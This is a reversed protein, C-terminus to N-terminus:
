EDTYESETVDDSNLIDDLQSGLAAQVGPDVVNMTDVSLLQNIIISPTNSPAIGMVQLARYEKKDSLTLLDKATLGLAQMNAKILELQQNPAKTLSKILHASLKLTNIHNDRIAPISKSIIDLALQEIEKKYSKALRHTTQTCVGLQKATATQSMGQAMLEKAKEVVIKSMVQPM